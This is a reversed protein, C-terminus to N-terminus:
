DFLFKIAHGSGWGTMPEHIIWTSGGDKSEMVGSSQNWKTETWGWRYHFSVLVHNFDTPDVAVDYIDENDITAAKRADTFGQPKLFTEGGDTSVFFGQSSGRVGDGAYLHKSDKPDIRIHLPMDLHDSAGTYAPKVKAVRTWTSGGDASKYLGGLSATYPTTGWYITAPNNPDIAVGQGLCTEPAGKQIGPPTIDQWVGPTLTPNARAALAPLVALTVGLPRRLASVRVRSLPSM